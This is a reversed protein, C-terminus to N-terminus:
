RDFVLAMHNGAFGFNVFLMRKMSYGEYKKFDYYANAKIREDREFINRVEPVHGDRFNKLAVGGESLAQVGFTSGLFSKYAFLPIRDAADGFVERIADAEYHDCSPSGSASGAIFDVSEPSAKADCLADRIAQLVDAPSPKVFDASGNSLGIGKIKGYFPGQCDSEKEIIFCGAGESIVLGDRTKCYPRCATAPDDNRHSLVRIKNWLHYTGTELCIDVGTIIARDVVGGKILKDAQLIANSSSTCSSSVFWSPGKVGFLDALRSPLYSNMGHILSTIKYLNKMFYDKVLDSIYLFNGLSSAILLATRRPNEAIKEAIGGEAIAENTVFIAAKVYDQRLDEDNLRALIAPPLVEPAIEPVMGGIDTKVKPAMEFRTIKRIGNKKQRFNKMNEQLGLGAASILGIGSVVNEEM